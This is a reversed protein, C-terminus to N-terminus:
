SHHHPFSPYLLNHLTGITQAMGSIELTCSAAPTDVAVAQQPQSHGGVPAIACSAAKHNAFMNAICHLAVAGPATYAFRHPEVELVQCTSDIEDKQYAGGVHRLYRKYLELLNYPVQQDLCIDPVLVYM